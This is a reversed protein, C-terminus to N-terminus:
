PVYDMSTCHVEYQHPILFSDKLIVVANILILDAGSGRNPYVGHLCREFEDADYVGAGSITTSGAVNHRGDHEKSLAVNTDIELSRGKAPISFDNGRVSTCFSVLGAM